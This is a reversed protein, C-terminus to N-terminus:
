LAERPMDGCYACWSRGGEDDHGPCAEIRRMWLERQEPTLLGLDYAFCICVRVHPRHRLDDRCDRWLDTLVQEVAGHTAVRGCPFPLAM